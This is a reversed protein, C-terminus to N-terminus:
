AQYLRGGRAAVVAVLAALLKTLRGKSAVMNIENRHRFSHINRTFLRFEM